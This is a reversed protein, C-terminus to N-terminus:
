AETSAVSMRTVGSGTMVDQCMISSLTFPMRQAAGGSSSCMVQSFSFRRARGSLPATLFETLRQCRKSEDSHHKHGPAQLRFGSAGPVLMSDSSTERDIVVCHLSFSCLALSDAPM